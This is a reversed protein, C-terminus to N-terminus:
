EPQSRYKAADMGAHETLNLATVASHTLRNHLMRQDLGHAKGARQGTTARQKVQACGAM